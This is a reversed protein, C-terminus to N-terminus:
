RRIESLQAPESSEEFLTGTEPAGALPEHDSAPGRLVRGGKETVGGQRPLKWRFSWAGM